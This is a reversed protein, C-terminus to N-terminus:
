KSNVQNTIEELARRYPGAKATRMVRDRAAATEPDHPDLKTSIKLLPNNIKEGALEKRAEVCFAVFTPLTPPWDGGHNIMLEVARRITDGRFDGLKEAWLAKVSQLDVDRWLDLFKAGYTAAM